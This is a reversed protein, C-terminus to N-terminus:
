EKVTDWEVWSITGDIDGLRGVIVSGVNQGGELGAGSVPNLHLIHPLSVSCISLSCLDHPVISFIISASPSSHHHLVPM